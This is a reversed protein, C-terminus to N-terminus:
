KDKIVKIKLEADDLSKKLDKILADGEEYLKMAEELPLTNNEAREVIESLRNLKQEFTQEEKKEM